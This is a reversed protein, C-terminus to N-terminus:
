YIANHCRGHTRRRGDVRSDDGIIYYRWSIRGIGSTWSSHWNSRRKFHNIWRGNRDDGYGNCHGQRRWVTKPFKQCRYISIISGKCGQFRGNCSQTDCYGNRNGRARGSRGAARSRGDMSRSKGFIGQFCRFKRIKCCRRVCRKYLHYTGRRDNRLVARCAGMFDIFVQILEPLGKEITWKGLPLLVTTYFDRLVGSLFDFVPILSETWEKIKQLLPSFDIKDSWEVTAEVANHINDVIVGIIDRINELIAKGTENEEWALRFNRALNGVIVGIDGIIHLINELITITEPQNWVELFDSGISKALQKIEDLAYKWSDMVYQGNTEWAAKLPAFFDTMVSKVEEAFNIYGSEVEETEFMDSPNGALKDSTSTREQLINLEDIGTTLNNASKSADDLAQAYDQTQKIAKTYTTKGTLAAFFQALANSAAVLYTILQDLIPTVYNLIPEFATAFSNGVWKLDNYLLNVNEHFVTGARNSYIILNNFGTKTLEFLHTFASRLLMFTFLRTVSGIKKKLTKFSEGTAKTSKKLGNTFKSVVGSIASQLKQAANRVASVISSMASNIKQSAAAAKNGMSEFAKGLTPAIAQIKKAFSGFFGGNSPANSSIASKYDNFQKQVQKLSRLADEYQTANFTEKGGEMSRITAKCTNIQEILRQIKQSTEQADNGVKKTSAAMNGTSTSASNGSTATKQQVSYLNDLKNCTEAIDYQLSRYASSNKDIGQTVSLKEEKRLLDDLKKEASNIEATLKSADGSFESNKGVNALKQEFQEYPVDAKESTKEKVADLSQSAKEIGDSNIRISIQNNSGLSGLSNGIKAVADSVKQLKKTDINALSKFSSAIGRMGSGAQELQTAVSSFQKMCEIVETLKKTDISETIKKINNLVKQTKDFGSDAKNTTSEIEIILGDVSKEAM